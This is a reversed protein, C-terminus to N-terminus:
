AAGYQGEFWAEEFEALTPRPHHAWFELLEASAHQTATARNASFLQSPEVGARRAAANLLRGRCAVEAADVHATLTASFERHMMQWQRAAAAFIPGTATRARRM